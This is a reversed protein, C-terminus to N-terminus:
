YKDPYELALKERRRSGREMPQLMVLGLAETDERM